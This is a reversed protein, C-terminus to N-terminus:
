NHTDIRVSSNVGVEVGKGTLQVVVLFREQREM